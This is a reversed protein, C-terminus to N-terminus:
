AKLLSTTQYLDSLCYDEKLIMIATATYVKGLSGLHYMTHPTAKIQKEVDALGFSEEWLIRGDKAVAVSISPINNEEMHDLIRSRVQTFNDSNSCSPLLILVFSCCCLQKKLFDFLLM